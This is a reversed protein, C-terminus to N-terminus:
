PARRPQVRDISPSTRPPEQGQPRVSELHWQPPRAAVTAACTLRGAEPGPLVAVVATAPGTPTTVPVTWRGGGLPRAPGPAYADIETNASTARVLHQAAQQAPSYTSRGRLLEPVVEGARSASMLRPVDRPRVRGYYLGWPLVLVNAAFRDGGLHSCEWTDGPAAAALTSAVPRGEQACCRDHRGHACVLWLPGSVPDGTSGDLPLGLLDAADDLRGQVLPVSGPRRDSDTRSDAWLWRLGKPGPRGAESTRGPRRVLLARGGSARVRAEVAAGVQPELRSERFADPGWPGPQEVLLWFRAPAATGPLPDVRGRSAVACRDAGAPPRENM